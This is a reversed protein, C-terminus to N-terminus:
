VGMPGSLVRRIPRNSNSSLLRWMEMMQETVFFSLGQYGKGYHKPSQGISPLIIQQGVQMNDLQQKFEDRPAPIFMESNLMSILVPPLYVPGDKADYRVWDDIRARKWPDELDHERGRKLAPPPRQVIIYNDDGPEQPFVQSLEDTPSLEEQDKPDLSDFTINEHKHAAVVPISVTSSAAIDVPFARLVPEGNVLCFLTFTAM